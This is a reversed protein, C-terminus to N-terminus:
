SMMEPPRFQLRPNTEFATFFDKVHQVHPATVNRELTQLYQLACCKAVPLQKEIAYTAVRRLRDYTSTTAVGGRIEAEAWDLEARIASDIAELQRFGECAEAYHNVAEAIRDASTLIRALIWTNTHIAPTAGIARHIERAKTIYEAAGWLRGALQMASALNTYYRARTAADTDLTVLPLLIDIAGVADGTKMRINAEQEIAKIRRGEDALEVFDRKAAMVVPLAESWREMRSLLIARMLAVIARMHRRDACQTAAADAWELAEEAQAYEGFYSLLWAKKNWAEVSVEFAGNHSAGDAVLTAIDMWTLAERPANRMQATGEDVLAWALAPTVLVGGRYILALRESISSHSRLTELDREARARGRIAANRAFAFPDRPSADTDPRSAKIRLVEALDSRCSECTAVHAEMESREEDPCPGFAYRLVREPRCSRDSTM